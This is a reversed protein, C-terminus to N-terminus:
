RFCRMEFAAGHRFPAEGAASPATACAYYPPTQPPKRCADTPTAYSAEWLREDSRRRRRIASVDARLRAGGRAAAHKRSYDIPAASVYASRIRTRTQDTQQGLAM